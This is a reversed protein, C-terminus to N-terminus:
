ASAVQGSWLVAGVSPFGQGVRAVARGLLTPDVPPRPTTRALPYSPIHAHGTM